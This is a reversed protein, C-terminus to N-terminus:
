SYHTDTCNSFNMIQLPGSFIYAIASKIGAFFSYWGTAQIILIVAIPAPM